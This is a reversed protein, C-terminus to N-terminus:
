DSDGDHDRDRGSNWGNNWGGNSGGHGVHRNGGFQRDGFQWGDNRSGRQAESWRAGGGFRANTVMARRDVARAGHFRDAYGKGGYAPGSGFDIQLSANSQGKNCAQTANWGDAHAAGVAVLSTLAFAFAIGLGRIGNM